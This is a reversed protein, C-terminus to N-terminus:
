EAVGFVKINHMRFGLSPDQLNKSQLSGSSNIAKFHHGANVGKSSNDYKKHFMLVCM